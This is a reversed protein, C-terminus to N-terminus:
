QGIKVSTIDGDLHNLDDSWGVKVCDPFDDNEILPVGATTIVVADGDNVSISVLDSSWKAVVKYEDGVVMQIPESIAKYTDGFDAVFCGNTDQYLFLGIGSDNRWDLLTNDNSSARSSTFVVEAFGGIIEEDNGLSDLASNCESCVICINDSNRTKDALIRSTPYAYNEIQPFLIYLCVIDNTTMSIKCTNTGSLDNSVIHFMQYEDTLEIETSNDGISINAKKSRSCRILASFCVIGILTTDQTVNIENGYRGGSNRFWQAEIGKQVVEKGSVLKTTDYTWSKFDNTSNEECKFIANLENPSYTDNISTCSRTQKVLYGEKDNLYRNGGGVYTVSADGKSILNTTTFDIEMISTNHMDDTITKEITTKDYDDNTKETLNDVILTDNNSVPADLTNPVVSTETKSTDNDVCRIIYTESLYDLYNFVVVAKDNEFMNPEITVSQLTTGKHTLYVSSANNANSTYVDVRIQNSGKTYFAALKSM